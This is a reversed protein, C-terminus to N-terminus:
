GFSAELTIGTSIMSRTANLEVLAMADVSQVKLKKKSTSYFGLLVVDQLAESFRFIRRANMENLNDSPLMLYIGIPYTLALGGYESQDLTPNGAQIFVFQSWNTVRDDLTQVFYSSADFTSLLTDGNETNIATIRTNLNAKLYTELDFILTELKYAM